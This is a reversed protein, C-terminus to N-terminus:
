THLHRFRAARRLHRRCRCCQIHTALISKDRHHARFLPPRSYRQGRSAFLTGSRQRALKWSGRQLRSYSGHECITKPFLCASTTSQRTNLYVGYGLCIYELTNPVSHQITVCVRWKRSPPLRLLTAHEPERNGRVAVDLSWLACRLLLGAMLAPQAFVM